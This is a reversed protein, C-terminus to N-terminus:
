PNINIILLGFKSFDDCVVLALRNARWLIRPYPVLLDTTIYQWCRTSNPKSGMEGTQKLQAPKVGAYVQYRKVYNNIDSKM